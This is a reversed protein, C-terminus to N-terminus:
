VKYKPKIVDNAIKLATTNNTAMMFHYMIANMSNRMVFPESVYTFVKKLQGTYLKALKLVADKEKAMLTQEGEEFMTYSKIETYFHKKIETRDSGLFAELKQLWAEPINGDNVLLRNPGVGTPVLIWLDVGLGKLAEISSWNLSMGYPDVFALARFANEKKLFAAMSVLKDNCDDQVVFARRSPFGAEVQAKLQQQYTENKEVFYYM